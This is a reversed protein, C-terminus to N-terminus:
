QRQTQATGTYYNIYPRPNNHPHEALLKKGDKQIFTVLEIGRQIDVITLTYIVTGPVNYTKCNDWVLQVDDLFEEVYRYKDDRLKAGITGIDM